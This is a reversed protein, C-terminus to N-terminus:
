KELHKEELGAGALARRVNKVWKHSDAEISIKIYKAGLEKEEELIKKEPSSFQKWFEEKYEKWGPRDLNLLYGMIYTGLGLSFRGEEIGKLYRKFLKVKNEFNLWLFVEIAVRHTGISTDALFSELIWDINQEACSNVLKQAEEEKGTEKAKLSAIEALQRHDSFKMGEFSLILKKYKQYAEWLLRYFNEEQPSDFEPLKGGMLQQLKSPKSEARGLYLGNRYITIWDGERIKLGQSNILYGQEFKVGQASLSFLAPIGTKLSAATLHLPFRSLSIIGDLEQMVEIDSPSFSSKILIVREGRLKAEEAKTESFYARGIVAADPFSTVGSAFLTLNLVSITESELQRLHHPRIFKAVDDEGVWSCNEKRRNNYMDIISIMAGPGTMITENAQTLYFIGNEIAFEITVPSNLRRELSKIQAMSNLIEPFHERVKKEHEDFFLISKTEASGTMIAEGFVRRAAELRIGRGQWPDRTHLVGVCSNEPLNGYVMEQFIISPVPDPVFSRLFSMEKVSKYALSVLYEVAYYPESLLRADRAKIEQELASVSEDKKAIGLSFLLTKLYNLYIQEAMEKGYRNVLGPLVNKSVGLNLYTPMVGPLNKALASRLSFILPDNSDNFKRGSLKELVEIARRINLSLQEPSLEFNFKTLISFDPISYKAESLTLLMRGKYSLYEDLGEQSFFSCKFVRRAGSGTFAVYENEKFGSLSELDSFDSEIEAKLKKEADCSKKRAEIILSLYEVAKETQFYRLYHFDIDRVIMEQVQGQQSFTITLYRSPFFLSRTKPQGRYGSPSHPGRPERIRNEYEDQLAIRPYFNGRVSLIKLGM